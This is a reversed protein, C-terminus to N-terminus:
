IAVMFYLSCCSCVLNLTSKGAAISAAAAATKKSTAKIPGSHSINTADALYQRNKSGKYQKLKVFM